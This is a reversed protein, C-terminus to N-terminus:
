RRPRRRVSFQHEFHGSVNFFVTHQDHALGPADNTIADDRYFFGADDTARDYRYEVRVLVVDFLDASVQAAGSLLWGRTGFIVGDRDWWFDPRAAIDVVVRDRVLPSGHVFLAGGTWVFVPEGPERTRKEQGYDWLAAIGWREAAYQVFSDSHVRWARPSIDANEPGFYVMSAALLGDTPAWNAGVIYSPARNVDAITQWGNVLWGFVHVDAPLEQDVRLGM